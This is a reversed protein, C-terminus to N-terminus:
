LLKECVGVSGTFVFGAEAAGAKLVRNVMTIGTHLVRHPRDHEVWGGGEGGGGM